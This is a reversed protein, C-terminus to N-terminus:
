RLWEDVSRKLYKYDVQWEPDEALGPCALLKELMDFAEWMLRSANDRDIGAKVVMKRYERLEYEAIEANTMEHYQKREPTM